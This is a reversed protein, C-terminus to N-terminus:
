APADQEGDKLANYIRSADTRSTNLMPAVTDLVEIVALSYRRDYIKTEFWSCYQEARKTNEPKTLWMMLQLSM